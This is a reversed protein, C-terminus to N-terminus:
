EWYGMISSLAHSFKLRFRRSEQWGIGHDMQWALKDGNPVLKLETDNERVTEVVKSLMDTGIHWLTLYLVSKTPSFEVRFLPSGQCRNGHDNLMRMPWAINEQKDGNPVLKLKVGNDGVTPEVDDRKIRENPADMSLASSEEAMPKAIDVLKHQYIVVKVEVGVEVEMDSRITLICTPRSGSGVSTGFACGGRNVIAHVDM